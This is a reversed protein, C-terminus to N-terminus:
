TYELFGAKDIRKEQRIDLKEQRYGINYCWVALKLHLKIDFVYM